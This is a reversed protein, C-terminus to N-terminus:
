ASFLLQRVIHTNAYKVTLPQLNTRYLLVVNGEDLKVVSNRSDFIVTPIYCIEPFSSDISTFLCADKPEMEMEEILLLSTPATRIM